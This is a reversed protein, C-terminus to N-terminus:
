TGVALVSAILAAIGALAPGTNKSGFVLAELQANLPTAGFYTRYTIQAVAFIVGAYGLLEPVTIGSLGGHDAIVSAAGAVVSVAVAVAQNLWAPANRSKLASIALPVLLGLVLAVPAALIPNEV